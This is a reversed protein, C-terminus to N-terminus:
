RSGARRELNMWIKALVRMAADAFQHWRERAGGATLMAETHEQRGTIVLVRELFIRDEVHVVTVIEEELFLRKNSIGPSCVFDEGHEILHVCNLFHNDNSNM